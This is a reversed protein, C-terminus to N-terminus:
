QGSGNLIQHAENICTQCYIKGEEYEGGLRVGRDVYESCGACTLYSWSKNGIIEAADSISPAEGLAHLRECISQDVDRLWKGDRVRAREWRLAVGRATAVEISVYKPRM